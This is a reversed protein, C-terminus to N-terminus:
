ALPAGSIMTPLQDIDIRNMIRQFEMQGRSFVEPASEFGAYYIMARYVIAMHFRDPLLGPVDTDEEMLAPNTYYEGVIVYAQDPAAGFGLNKQPDITIVVPRQYTTRMSAYWYLNRYVQFDMYNLLQEDGYNAGVSSARFSDRKWNSFSSLGADAASYFRQQAVTNFQLSQRMFFWDEKARQIDMWAENVWDKIRASEGTLNSLTSLTPGSVGCEVRTRNVLALFDM